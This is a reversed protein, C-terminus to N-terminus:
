QAEMARRICKEIEVVHRSAAGVNEKLSALEDGIDMERELMRNVVEVQIAVNGVLGSVHDHFLMALWALQETSLMEGLQQEFAEFDIERPM